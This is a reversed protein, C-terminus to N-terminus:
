EIIRPVKFFDGEKEPANKLADAINLSKKVKDQRFVNKIPLVHSTPEVGSTDAQNLKEIYKLIDALQLALERTEKDSLKMRALKATYEVITKDFKM